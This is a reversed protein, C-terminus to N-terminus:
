AAPKNTLKDLGDDIRRTAIYDEVKMNSTAFHPNAAFEDRYAQNEDAAKGEAQQSNGGAATNRKVMEGIIRDQAQEISLKEAILGGALDAFGAIKCKDAIATARKLEAATAEAVKADLSAADTKSKEVAAAELAALAKAAEAKAQEAAQANTTDSMESTETNQPKFYTAALGRFRDPLHPFDTVEFCAAMKRGDAIRDVFRIAKAEQASLWTERAMMERVDKVDTKTREAYINALSDRMKDLVNAQQRLDESNGSISAMPDHLMMLGAGSMVIESGAMAIISGMSAAIGDIFTTVKGKSNKLTEYIAIGETVSGGRSNIRVAIEKRDGLKKFQDVFKQATLGSGDSQKGILDYINVEAADADIARMEINM